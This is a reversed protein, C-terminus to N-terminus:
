DHAVREDASTQTGRPNKREWQNAVNRNISEPRSNGGGGRVVRREHDYLDHCPTASSYDSLLEIGRPQNSIWCSEDHRNATGPEFSLQLRSDKLNRSAHCGCLNGCRQGLRVALWRDGHLQPCAQAQLLDNRLRPRDIERERL